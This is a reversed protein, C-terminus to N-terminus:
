LNHLHEVSGAVRALIRSYIASKLLLAHLLDKVIMKDGNELGLKTPEVAVTQSTVFEPELIQMIVVM